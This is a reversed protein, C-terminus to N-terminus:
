DAEILTYQDASVWGTGCFLLLIGLLFTRQLPNTHPPEYVQQSTQLRVSNGQEVGFVMIEKYSVYKDGFTLPETKALKKQFDSQRLLLTIPRNPQIAASLNALRTDFNRRSIFFSFGPFARLSITVGTLKGKNRNEQVRNAVDTISVLQALTKDAPNHARYGFAINILILVAQGILVWRLRTREAVTLVTRYPVAQAYQIFQARLYPYDSFENSRIVFWNDRLYITLEDFTEAKSSNPRENYALIDSFLHHSTKQSAKKLSFCSDDLFQIVTTQWISYAVWIVGVFGAVMYFLLLTDLDPYFTAEFAAITPGICTVGLLCLLFFWRLFTNFPKVSFTTPRQDTM